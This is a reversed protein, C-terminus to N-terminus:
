LNNNLFFKQATNYSEKDKLSFWEGECVNGYITKGANIMGNLAENISTNSGVYDFISPTFIYRGALAMQPFKDDERCENISKIKYFRNAIKEAEVIMLGPEYKTVERLAVVPKESTRYVSFIQELSSKKGHFIYDSVSVIFADEEIKEKARYIAYADSCKKQIITSFDVSSYKEKFSEQEISVDKFSTFHNLVEKKQSSSVFLIEKIECGVIEDVVRQVAPCSGLPLLEKPTFRALPFLDEQGKTSSIIAKKIGNIM